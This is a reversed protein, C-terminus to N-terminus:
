HWGAFPKQHASRVRWPCVGHQRRDRGACPVARGGGRPVGDLLRQPGGPERLRLAACVQGSQSGCAAAQRVGLVYPLGRLPTATKTWMSPVGRVLLSRGAKKIGTQIDTSRRVAPWCVHRQSFSKENHVAVCRSLWATCRNCRCPGAGGECDWAGRLGARVGQWACQSLHAGVWM